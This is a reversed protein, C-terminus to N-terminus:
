VSVGGNLVTLAYNYVPVTVGGATYSDANSLGSEAITTFIDEQNPVVPLKTDVIKTPAGIGGNRIVTIDCNKINGTTKKYWTTVADIACSIVIKEGITIDRGTIKYYADFLDIYVYNATLYTSNYSISFTPSLVRMDATPVANLATSVDTFTKDATRMDDTTTKLTITM